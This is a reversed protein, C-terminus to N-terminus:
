KLAEAEENLQFYPMMEKYQMMPAKRLPVARSKCGNVPEANFPEVTPFKLPYPEVFAKIKGYKLTSFRFVLATRVRQVKFRQFRQVSVTIKIDYPNGHGL